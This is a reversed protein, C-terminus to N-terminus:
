SHVYTFLLWLQPNYPIATPSPFLFLCVQLCFSICILFFYIHMALFILKLIMVYVEFIIDPFDLSTLLKHWHKKWICHVYKQHKQM